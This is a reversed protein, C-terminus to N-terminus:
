KKLKKILETFQEGLIESVLVFNIERRQVLAMSVGIFIELRMRVKPMLKEVGQLVCLPDLLNKDKVFINIIYKWSDEDFRNSLSSVVKSLILNAKIHEGQLRLAKYQDLNVKISKKM